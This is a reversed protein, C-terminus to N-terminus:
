EGGCAAEPLDCSVFRDLQPYSEWTADDIEAPPQFGDMIGPSTAWGM